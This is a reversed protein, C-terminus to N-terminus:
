DLTVGILPPWYVTWQLPKDLGCVIRMGAPLGAKAIWSFVM